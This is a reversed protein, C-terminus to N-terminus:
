QRIARLHVTYLVRVGQDYEALVSALLDLRRRSRCTSSMSQSSSLSGPRRLQRIITLHSENLHSVFTRDPLRCAQRLGDASVKGRPVIIAEGVDLTMLM